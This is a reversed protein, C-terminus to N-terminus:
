LIVYSPKKMALIAYSIILGTVTDIPIGFYVLYPIGFGYVYFVWSYPVHWRIVWYWTDEWAFVNIVYAIFTLFDIISDIMSFLIAGIATILMGVFWPSIVTAIMTILQPTPFYGYHAQATVEMIALGLGVVIPPIFRRIYRTVTDRM